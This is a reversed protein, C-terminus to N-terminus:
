KKPGQNIARPRSQIEVKSAGSTSAPPVRGHGEPDQLSSCDHDQRLPVITLKCSSDSERWLGDHQLMVLPVAFESDLSLLSRERIAPVPLRGPV